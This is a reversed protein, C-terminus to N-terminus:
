PDAEDDLSLLLTEVCQRNECGLGHNPCPAEHFGIPAGIEDPLRPSCLLAADPM